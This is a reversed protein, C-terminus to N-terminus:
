LQVAFDLYFCAQKVFRVTSGQIGGALTPHDTTKSSVGRDVKLFFPFTM